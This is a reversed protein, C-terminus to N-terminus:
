TEPCTDCDHSLTLAQLLRPGPDALFLSSHCSSGPGYTVGWRKPAPCDLSFASRPGSWAGPTGQSGM